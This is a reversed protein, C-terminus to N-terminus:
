ITYRLADMYENELLEIRKRRALGELVAANDVTYYSIPTNTATAIIVLFVILVAKKLTAIRKQHRVAGIATKLEKVFETKKTNIVERAIKLLNQQEVENIATDILLSQVHQLNSQRVQNELDYALELGMMPQGIVLSLLVFLISVVRRM